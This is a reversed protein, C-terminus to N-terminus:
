SKQLERHEMYALFIYVYKQFWKQQIELNLEKHNKEMSHGERVNIIGFFYGTGITESVFVTYLQKAALFYKM